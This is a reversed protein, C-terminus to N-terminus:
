KDVLQGLVLSIGSETSVIEHAKSEVHSYDVNISQQLDVLHVRGKFIFPM